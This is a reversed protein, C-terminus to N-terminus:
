VSHMNSGRTKNGRRQREEFCEEEANEDARCGDNSTCLIEKRWMGNGAEQGRNGLLKFLMKQMATNSAM